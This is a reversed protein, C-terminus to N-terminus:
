EFFNSFKVWDLEVELHNSQTKKIWSSSEHVSKDKQCRLYLHFPPSDNKKENEVLKNTVFDFKYLLLQM